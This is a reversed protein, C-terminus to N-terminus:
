KFIGTLESFAKTSKMVSVQYPYKEPLLTTVIYSKYITEGSECSYLNFNLPRDAIDDGGDDFVDGEDLLATLLFKVKYKSCMSIAAEKNKDATYKKADKGLYSKRITIYKTKNNRFTQLIDDSMFRLNHTAYNDQVFLLISKIKDTSVSAEIPDSEILTVNGINYTVSDLNLMFEDIWKRYAGHIKRTGNDNEDYDLIESHQYVIELKYRDYIIEHVVHIKNKHSLRVTMIGNSDSELVWQHRRKSSRLMAVTVIERVIPLDIGGRESFYKTPIEELFIDAYSTVPFVLVFM